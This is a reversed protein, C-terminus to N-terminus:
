DIVLSKQLNKINEIRKTLDIKPKTSIHIKNKPPTFGMQHNEKLNDQQEIRPHFTGIRARQILQYLYGAPNRINGQKLRFLGEELVKECLESPLQHLEMQLRQYESETLQFAKLSKLQTLVTNSISTSYEANRNPVKNNKLAKQSPKSISCQTKKRLKALSSQIKSLSPSLKRPSSLIQSLTEKTTQSPDRQNNEGHERQYQQYRSQIIKIHSVFHWLTDKQEIMEDIIATAVQQIIPDYHHYAKELLQLYHQNVQLTDRISIPEDNMIYVNGLIQGQKNRVTECLTLWRTLRLLLLTQSVVKKSVAKGQYRKESLWLALQQYTPFVAGQFPKAQTKILQWALKARPTLYPDQLLRLPVTEHHNGIFLLTEKTTELHNKQKSDEILKQKAFETNVSITTASKM